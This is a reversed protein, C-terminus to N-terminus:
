YDGLFSDDFSIPMINQLSNSKLIVGEDGQMILFIPTQQKVEYEMISQRCNGCPGVPRDVKHLKSGASIAIGLIKKGPYNAAAAYLAVREACLGSPYCANEQNNGLVVEGGELLVAAGVNFKSYPAYSNKRATIASSLLDAENASLKSSTDYEELECVVTRKKM